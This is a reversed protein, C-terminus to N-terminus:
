LDTSPAPGRERQLQLDLSGCEKIRSSFPKTHLQATGSTLEASLPTFDTSITARWHQSSLGDVISSFAYTNGDVLKQVRIISEGDPTGVKSERYRFTGAQLRRADFGQRGHGDHHQGSAAAILLVQCLVRIVNMNTSRKRV